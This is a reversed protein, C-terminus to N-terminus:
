EDRRIVGVGLVAGSHGLIVEVGALLCTLGASGSMGLIVTVICLWNLTGSSGVINSMINSLLM